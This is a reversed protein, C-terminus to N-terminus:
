EAPQANAGAIVRIREGSHLSRATAEDFVHRSGDRLRVVFRHRSAITTHKVSPPGALVSEVTDALTAIGPYGAREYQGGTTGPRDFYAFSRVQRLSEQRDVRGISEVVGCDACRGKRRVSGGISLMEPPPADVNTAPTTNAGADPDDEALYAPPKADVLAVLTAAGRVGMSASGALAGAIAAVGVLVSVGYRLRADNDM